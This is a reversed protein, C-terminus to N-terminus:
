KIIKVIAPLSNRQRGLKKDQLKILLVSLLLFAIGGIIRGAMVGLSLYLFVAGGLWVGAFLAIIPLIFILFAGKLTQEDQIEFLVSQGARANIKNSVTIIPADNGPCAGCNECDSHRSAKVKATEGNIELVIGEETKTYSM